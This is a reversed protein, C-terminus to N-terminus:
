KETTATEPGTEQNREKKLEQRDEKPSLSSGTLQFLSMGGWTIKPMTSILPVSHLSFDKALSMWGKIWVIVEHM